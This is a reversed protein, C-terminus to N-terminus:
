ASSVLQILKDTDLNDISDATDDGTDASQYAQNMRNLMDMCRIKNEDKTEDCQIMDWLIGRIRETDSIAANQYHNLLPIRLQEVRKTIDDRRTLEYAERCITNDNMKDTNYAQIYSDKATMGSALCRCFEEQKATLKSVM